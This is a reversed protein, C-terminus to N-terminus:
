KIPPPYITLQREQYADSPSRPNLWYGPVTWVVSDNRKAVVPRSTMRAVTFQWYAPETGGARAAELLLVAEPDTAETLVFLAGDLIDAAGDEFRYVPQPMLRLPVPQEGVPETRFAFQECLRRMQTLRLPASAAPAPVDTLRQEALSASQPMWYERGKRVCELASASLSATEFWVSGNGRISVTAIAAPRKGDLWLFLGGDSFFNRIPNSWRLIPEDVTNLPQDSQGDRFVQFESRLGKMYELRVKRAEDNNADAPPQAQGQESLLGVVVLVTAAAARKNSIPLM